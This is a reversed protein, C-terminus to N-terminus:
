DGANPDYYDEGINLSDLKKKIEPKEGRWKLKKM